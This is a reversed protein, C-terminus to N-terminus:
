ILVYLWTRSSCMAVSCGATLCSELGLGPCSLLLTRVGVPETGQSSGARAPRQAVRENGPHLHWLQSAKM